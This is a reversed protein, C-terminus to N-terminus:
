QLFSPLFFLRHCSSSKSSQQQQLLESKNYFLDGCKAKSSLATIKNNLYPANTAGAPAWMKQHEDYNCNSLRCCFTVTSTKATTRAACLALFFLLIIIVRSNLSSSRNSSAASRAVTSASSQYFIRCYSFERPKEDSPSWNGACSQCVEEIWCPLNTGPSRCDHGLSAQLICFEMDTRGYCLKKSCSIFSGDGADDADADNPQFCCCASNSVTAPGGWLDLVSSASM